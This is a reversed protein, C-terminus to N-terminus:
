AAARGNLTAQQEVWEFFRAENILVKRGIRVLAFDLGNGPIVGKSTQRPSANFILARM